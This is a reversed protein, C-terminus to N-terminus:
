GQIAVWDGVDKPSNFNRFSTQPIDVDFEEDIDHMFQVVDLSDMGIDAFTQEITADPFGEEILSMVRVRVDAPEFM